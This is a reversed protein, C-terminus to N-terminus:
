SRPELPKAEPPPPSGTVPAGEPLPVLEYGQVRMCFSTLDQIVELRSFGWGPAYGFGLGWGPWFPRPGYWGWGGWGFAFPATRNAQAVAEQHCRNLMEQPARAGDSMRQWVYPRSACGAVLVALSLALLRLRPMAVLMARVRTAIIAMPATDM